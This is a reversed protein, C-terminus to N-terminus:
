RFKTSFCNATGVTGREPGGVTNISINPMEARCMTAATLSMIFSYSLCNLFCSISNEKNRNENSM